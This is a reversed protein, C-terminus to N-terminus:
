LSIFLRKKGNDKPIEVGRVPNPRYTGNLISELLEEKHNTLYTLLEEAGMGDVGGAGNNVKVRRYAKNLNTPSLIEELLGHQPRDVNTFNNDTIRMYTQGGVYGEPEARNTCQCTDKSIKQMGGKM